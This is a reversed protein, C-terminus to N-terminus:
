DLNFRRSGPRPTLEGQGTTGTNTTLPPRTAASGVNRYIVSSDCHQKATGCDIERTHRCSRAGGASKKAMTWGKCNCSTTGDTYHLTEYPTRNPNSESKFRYIAAIEKTATSMLQAKREARKKDFAAREMQAKITRKLTKNEEALNTITAVAKM